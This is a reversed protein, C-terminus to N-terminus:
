KILLIERIFKIFVNKINIETIKVDMEDWSWHEVIKFGLNYLSQEGYELLSDPVTQQKIFPTYPAFLPVAQRETSKINVPFVTGKLKYPYVLLKIHPSWTADAFYM